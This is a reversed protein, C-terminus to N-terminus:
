DLDIVPQETETGYFERTYGKEECWAVLVKIGNRTDPYIGWTLGNAKVTMLKANM